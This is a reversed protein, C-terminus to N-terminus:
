RPVIVWLARPVCEFECPTKGAIEADTHILVSPNSSVKLRRTQFHEVDPLQLLKGKKALSMYKLLNWLRRRKMIVVDLLGDDISAGPAFLFPGGYFRANAIIALYGSRRGPLDDSEIELLPFPYVLSVLMGSLIFSLGGLFPKLGPVLSLMKIAQADFSMGAAMAFFRKDARGLDIQRAHGERIVKVAAQISFPIGLEIALVNTSGLPIIGLRTDSGAMGNIVENVTGDGGAVIILRENKRVLDKTIETADGSSNTVHVHVNLGEHALSDAILKTIKKYPVYSSKISDSFNILLNDLAVALRSRRGARLNIILPIEKNM